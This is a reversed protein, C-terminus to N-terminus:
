RALIGAERSPVTENFHFVLPSGPKTSASRVRRRAEGEGMLSYGVVDAALIAARRRAAATM